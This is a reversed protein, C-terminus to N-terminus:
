KSARQAKRIMEFVSKADALLDFRPGLYAESGPWGAMGGFMWGFPSGGGFSITGDGKKGESISLDSLSRLDLSKVKRMMLGSIILIRENTLAYFTRARQRAEVFFRGIVFYIGVCVFPIGFLAFFGPAPMVLASVEWVIAFGCWLLSFPILFIDSGRLVIGQRPQGSWLVQEADSLERGIEDAIMDM